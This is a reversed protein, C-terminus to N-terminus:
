IEGGIVRDNGFDASINVEVVYDSTGFKTHIPAPTKTLCPAVNRHKGDVSAIARLVRCQVITCALSVTLCLTM